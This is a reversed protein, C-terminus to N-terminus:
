IALRGSIITIKIKLAQGMIEFNREDAAAQPSPKV